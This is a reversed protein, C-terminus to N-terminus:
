PKRGKRKPKKHEKTIVNPHDALNKRYKKMYAARAARFEPTSSVTSARAKQRCQAPAPCFRQTGTRKLFWRGCNGWQCRALKGLDGADHAEIVLPVIIAGDVLGAGAGHSIHVWRKRLKGQRFYFKPSRRYREMLLNLERELRDEVTDELGFPSASALPKEAALLNLEAIIDLVRRLNKSPRQLVPDNLRALFRERNYPLGLVYKGVETRLKRKEVSLM